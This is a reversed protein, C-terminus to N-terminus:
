RSPAASTPDVIVTVTVAAFEAPLPAAAVLAGVPVTMVPGTVSTMAAPVDAVFRGVSVTHGPECFGGYMQQQADCPWNTVKEKLTAPPSM